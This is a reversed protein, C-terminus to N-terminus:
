LQGFIILFLQQRSYDRRQYLGSPCNRRGGDINVLDKEYYRDKCIASLMRNKQQMGLLPIEGSRV